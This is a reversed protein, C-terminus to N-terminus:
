RCAFLLGAHRLRSYVNSCHPALSTPAAGEPSPSTSPVRFVVEIRDPAIEIRRVLTHILKRKENWDLRELGQAVKAAFDELRNIVLSLESDANVVDLVAHHQQDLQSMRQKMGNVRPEFESKDIMGGGYADILRDIGNRLTKMQRDLNTLEDSSAAGVQVQQIRRRYEDAVRNPNELLSRVHDWVVQEIRKGSVPLNTCKPAGHLRREETGICRYYYPAEHSCNTSAFGSRKACYSYGCSRCVTLGQLLWRAGKLQERKHKRNEELQIQAAEYVALDVLAPVPIDICEESRGRIRRTASPAPRANRRNSRSPEDVEVVRSRGLVAQGIYAPNTLMGQITGTSWHTLGRRTRCDMQELRRCVGRMSMRDLGMWAFILRVVRAEEEVIEYRATGGGDHRCIYRYGYPAGTLASVLGTHAAHRRGRRVRELLKEREYEAIVGQVHLLLTDEPTSGISRNLFVVEVGKRRFEDVLLVQHAYRRALRDPSHVYLREVCGAAIADRLKELVPRQLYKGTHGDEIYRHEPELAYGDAAIRQEIAAIQSEITHDRSQADTSVRAYCAVTAKIM